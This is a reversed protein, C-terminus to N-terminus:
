NHTSIRYSLSEQNSCLSLRSPCCPEPSRCFGQAFGETDRKRWNFTSIIFTRDSGCADVQTLFGKSGCPSLTPCHRKLLHEGRLFWFLEGGTYRCFGALSRDNSEGLRESAECWM